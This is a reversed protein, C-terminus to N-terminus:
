DGEFSILNPDCTLIRRTVVCLSVKLESWRTSFYDTPPRAFYAFGTMRRADPACIPSPKLDHDLDISNYISRCRLVAIKDSM